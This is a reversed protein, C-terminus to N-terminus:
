RRRRCGATTRRSPRTPRPAPSSRCGTARNGRRAQRPSAPTAIAAARARDERPPSARATPRGRLSSRGRGPIPGPNESLTM